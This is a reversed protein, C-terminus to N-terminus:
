HKGRYLGYQEPDVKFGVSMTDSILEGLRQEGFTIAAETQGAVPTLSFKPNGGNPDLDFAAEVTATVTKRLAGESFVPVTFTIYDPLATGDNLRAEAERGLNRKTATQETMASSNVQVKRALQLLDVDVMGKFKTRLIRIISAQDFSKANIEFDVLAVMQPSQSLDMWAYHRRYEPDFVLHIGERDFYFEPRKGEAVKESALRCLTEIDAAMHERPGIAAEERKVVGDPGVVLYVYDPEESPKAIRIGAAEVAKQAIAEVFSKDLM